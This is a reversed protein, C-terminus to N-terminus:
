GLMLSCHLLKTVNDSIGGVRSWYNSYLFATQGAGIYKDYSAATVLEHIGIDTLRSFGAAYDAKSRIACDYVAGGGETYIDGIGTEDTSFAETFTALTASGTIDNWTLTTTWANGTGDWYRTQDTASRRLERIQYQLLELADDDDHSVRLLLSATPGPVRARIVKGGRVGNGLKFRLEGAQADQFIKLEGDKEVGNRILVPQNVFGSKTWADTLGAAAVGNTNKTSYFELFPAYRSRGLEAGYVYERVLKVKSGDTAGIAVLVNPPVVFDSYAATTSIAVTGLPTAPGAQAQVIQDSSLM